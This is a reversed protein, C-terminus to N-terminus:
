SEFSDDSELNSSSDSKEDICELTNKIVKQVESSSGFFENSPELLSKLADETLIPMMLGGGVTNRRTNARAIM